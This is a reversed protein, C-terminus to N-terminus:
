ILINLWGKNFDSPPSSEWSISEGNEGPSLFFKGQSKPTLHEEKAEERFGMDLHSFVDFKELRFGEKEIIKQIPWFNHEILEKTLPNEALIKARINEKERTIELYINGLHPPELTVKIQEQDNKISWIIRQGIQKYIEVEALRGPSIGERSWVERTPALNDHNLITEKNITGPPFPAFEDLKIAGRKEGKFFSFFFNKEAAMLNNSSQEGKGALSENYEKGLLSLPGLEKERTWSPTLKIGEEKLLSFSWNKLAMDPGLFEQINQGFKGRVLFPIMEQQNKVKEEQIEVAAQEKREQGVLSAMIVPRKSEPFIETGKDINKLFSFNFNNGKTLNLLGDEGKTFFNISLNEANPLPALKETGQKLGIKEQGNQLNFSVIVKKGILQSIEQTGEAKAEGVLLQDKNIELKALLDTAFCPNLMDILCFFKEPLIEEAKFKDMLNMKKGLLNEKLGTELPSGKGKVEPALPPRVMPTDENGVLSSLLPTFFSRFSNALWWSFDIEASVWNFLNYKSIEPRLSLVSEGINM